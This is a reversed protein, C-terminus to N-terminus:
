VSCEFAASLRWGALGGAWWGVWGPKDVLAMEGDGRGKGFWAVSRQVENEEEMIILRWKWLQM